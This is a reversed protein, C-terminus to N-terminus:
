ALRSTTRLCRCLLWQASVRSTPVPFLFRTVVFTPPPAFCTPLRSLRDLKPPASLRFTPTQAFYREPGGGTSSPLRCHATCLRVASPTVKASFCSVMVQGAYDPPTQSCLMSCRSWSAPRAPF